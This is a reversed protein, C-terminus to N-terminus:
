IHKWINRNRINGIVSKSINYLESLQRKTLKNTNQRIELVQWEKLKVYTSSEGKKCLQLGNKYAHISNESYTVWELNEIRNDTKIGNIHNVCPKNEPNPIFALAVLRHVEVYKKTKNALVLKYYGKKSIAKSIFKGKLRRDCKHHQNYLLRDVSRVNGLNSVEYFGEYDKIAKWIEMSLSVFFFIFNM